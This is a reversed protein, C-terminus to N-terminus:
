ANAEKEFEYWNSFINQAAGPQFEVYYDSTWENVYNEYFVAFGRRTSMVFSDLLCGEVYDGTYEAGNQHAWKHFAPGPELRFCTVGAANKKTYIDNSLTFKFM